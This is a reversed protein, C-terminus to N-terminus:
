RHNGLDSFSRMIINIDNIPKYHKAYLLNLRQITFSDLKQGKLSSVPSVIGKKLSPLTNNSIDSYGVWTYNGFLVKFINKLFSFPQKIFLASIPSCILLILGMSIDLVRKKRLNEQRTIDLNFNLTYFEGNSNKFSSGIIYDSEQPVIKYELNKNDITTMLEIMNNAPLDKSCFILEEIKYIDIIDKLKSINGLSSEHWGENKQPSIYGIVKVLYNTDKILKEVRSSEAYNGVVVVRKQHEEGFYFNRYRLAHLTMRVLILVIGTSLGGLIILARSFRYMELYNSLASIIVTGVIVGRIIKSSRVKKDYGGSFYVTSLWIFIYVPVVLHMFIPPYYGAQWKFNEEWYVKLLYMSGYILGADLLLLSLKQITDRIFVYGAIGYMATNVLLPFTKSEFHKKVFLMMSKYFIFIFKATYRKSSEGKYHIITTEPFYYNKYGAKIIRYSLDTDEWYMFFNEDLIGVEDLVKK